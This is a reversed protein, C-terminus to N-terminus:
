EYQVKIEKIGTSHADVHMSKVERSSNNVSSLVWENETNLNLRMEISGNKKVLGRMYELEIVGGTTPNFNDSLLSIVDMGMQERLVVDVEGHQVNFEQMKLLSKGEWTYMNLGQIQNNGDVRLTLEDYKGAGLNNTIKVLDVEQAYTMFSALLALLTFMKM